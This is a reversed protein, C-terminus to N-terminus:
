MMMMMIITFVYTGVGVVSSDKSCRWAPSNDRLGFTSEEFDDDGDDGVDDYILLFWCVDGYIMM